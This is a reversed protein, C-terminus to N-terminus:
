PAALGIAEVLVPYADRWPIREQELLLWTGHTAAQSALYSYLAQESSTLHLLETRQPAAGDTTLHQYKKLTAVDTLITRVTLGLSRLDNVFQLGPADIDGWYIVTRANRTWTIRAYNVVSFGHGHLVVTGAHDDTIAYGTEKNELIVVTGPPESWINLDEVSAAFNRMGGLRSRLHHDLVAVQILDPPTRLGLREHLRIRASAPEDRTETVGEDAVLETDGLLALVLTAHGALWKTDIGEIPLQRLLLGSTPHTRLWTVAGALRQYDAEDLETLKRIIREFRAEPFLRQLNTLRQGCRQWTQRTCSHVGALDSPREIILAKPMPHTGTPFRSSAHEIKGPGSYGDWLAAWTHCAVPDSSREALTPLALPIRMPWTGQGRAWGPYDRGFRARLYGAVEDPQRM